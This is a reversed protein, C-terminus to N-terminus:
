TKMEVADCDAPVGLAPNRRRVDDIWVPDDSYLIQKGSRLSITVLRAGKKKVHAVIAHSRECAGVECEAVNIGIGSGIENNVLYCLLGSQDPRWERPWKWQLWMCRFVRCTEPRQKYRTCGHPGLLRCPEHEASPPEKIEIHVCCAHCSGCASSSM